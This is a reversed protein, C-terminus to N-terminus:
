NTFVTVVRGKKTWLQLQADEFEYVMQVSDDMEIEDVKKEPEEGIQKIAESLKLGIINVGRIYFEKYCAISVIKDNETFVLIEEDRMRFKMWNTSDEEPEFELLERAKKSLPFGMKFIGYSTKPIWKFEM